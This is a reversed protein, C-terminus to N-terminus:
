DFSGINNQYKSGIALLIIFGRPNNSPSPIAVHKAGSRSREFSYIRTRVVRLNGEAELAFPRRLGYYHDWSEDKGRARAARRKRIRVHGCTSNHFSISLLSPRRPRLLCVRCHEKDKKRVKEKEKEQEHETM